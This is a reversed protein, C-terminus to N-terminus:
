SGTHDVQFTIADQQYRNDLDLQDKFEAETWAPGPTPDDDQDFASGSQRYEHKSPLATDTDIAAGAPLDEFRALTVANVITGTTGWDIVPGLMRGSKADPNGGATLDIIPEYDGPDEVITGTAGTAPDAYNPDNVWVGHMGAGPSPDPVMWRSQAFRADWWPGPMGPAGIPGQFEGQTRFIDRLTDTDLNLRFDQGAADIFSPDQGSVSTDIGNAEANGPYANYDASFASAMETTVDLFYCSRINSTTTGRELNYFSCQEVITSANGLVGRGTGAAGDRQQFVCDIAYSANVYLAAKGVGMNRFTIGRFVCVGSGGVLIHGFEPLQEEFDWIVLGAQQPTVVMNKTISFTGSGSLVSVPYVGPAIIVRDGSAAAVAHVATLTRVPTTITLGDNTDLGNIIDWYVLKAM